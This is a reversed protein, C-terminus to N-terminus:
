MVACAAFGLFVLIFLLCMVGLALDLDETPPM